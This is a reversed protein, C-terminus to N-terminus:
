DVPRSGMIADFLDTVPTGELTAMDAIGSIRAAADDFLASAANSAFTDTLLAGERMAARAAQLDVLADRALLLGDEGGDLVAIRPALHELLLAARGAAGFAHGIETERTEQPIYEGEAFAAARSAEAAVRRLDDALAAAGGVQAGDHGTFDAM